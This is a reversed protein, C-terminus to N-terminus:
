SCLSSTFHIFSTFHFAHCMGCKRLFPSCLEEPSIEAIKEREGM